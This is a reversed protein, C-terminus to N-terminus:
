GEALLRRLTAVGKSAVEKIVNVTRGGPVHVEKPDILYVPVGPRAYRVLGAAPYVNLSTGVIVFIDAQEVERAAAELNPVAEGFWVIWPRLLSGDGAREGHAVDPHDPPLTKIFKPHDPDRSSCVKMLEGHLHIVHSSGAREHLDDVNQTVICVDYDAEMAALLRHGDNPEAKILQRRLGNYFDTVLDPDAAWGEPTAVKEVPYREWLGGADRFTEFGSEASMGAGTLIVLKKM